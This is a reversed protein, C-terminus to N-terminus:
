SRTSRKGSRRRRTSRGKHRKGGPQVTGVAAEEAPTPPVTGEVPAPAEETKGWSFPNYWAGGAFRAGVMGKPMGRRITTRRRAPVHKQSTRKGM